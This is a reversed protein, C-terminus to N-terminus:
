FAGVPCPTGLTCRPPDVLALSVFLFPGGKTFAAEGKTPTVTLWRVRSVERLTIHAQQPNTRNFKKITEAEKRAAV